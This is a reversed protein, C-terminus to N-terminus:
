FAGAPLLRALRQRARTLRPGVASETLQMVEAIEQYNLSEFHYLHLITQDDVSLQAMGQRLLAQRHPLDAADAPSIQRHDQHDDSHDETDGTGRGIRATERSKRRQTRRWRDVARHHAIQFIWTAGSAGRAPDYTQIKKWVSIFTEHVVEDAEEQDGVRNLVFRRLVPEAMEVLEAMAQPDGDRARVLLETWGSLASAAGPSDDANERLQRTRKSVLGDQQARNKSPGDVM